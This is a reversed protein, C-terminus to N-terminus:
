DPTFARGVDCAALNAGFGTFGYKVPKKTEGLLNPLHYFKGCVRFVTVGEGYVVGRATLM